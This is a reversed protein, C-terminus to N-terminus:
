LRPTDYRRLALRALNANGIHFGIMSMSLYKEYKAVVEPGVLEIAAARNARLRNLWHRLTEEYHFRDNRLLVMEFLRESAKVIEAVYPFDTEPFIEDEIFQSFVEPGANDMVVTQLSIWGGPKLWRHCSEFFRRYSAVKEDFSLGRKVFHEFAGISIIGDYPEQPSHDSWNEVTVHINSPSSAHIWDAQAQSLTLGVAHSVGYVQVLRRLTAGWGCGIDLIRQAGQARAQTIHFDIKRIQASELTDGEEWLAASYLMEQDLWLRYFDNGVDYHYQIAQESAGHYQIPESAPAISALASDSDLDSVPASYTM